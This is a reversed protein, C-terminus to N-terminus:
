RCFCMLQYIFNCFMCSIDHFNIVDRIYIYVCKYSHLDEMIDMFEHYMKVLFLNKSCLSFLDLDLTECVKELNDVDKQTRTHAPNVNPKKDERSSVAADMYSTLIQLFIIWHLIRDM